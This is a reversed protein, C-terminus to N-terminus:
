ALLERRLAETVQPRVGFWAEFAPAAQHMLMSLGDIVKNGRDRAAALLSTELPAYVIDYVLASKPLSSLDIELAPQNKMGLSTTNVLLGAGALAESRKEWDVVKGQYLSALHQAKEQSRNSIVLEKFGDSQLAWCIARAAGGAGLVVAKKKQATSAGQMFGYADTNMGHLKGNKIVITNAAGIERVVEDMSDLMPLVLEKHPLTLNCGIYNEAILKKLTAELAEPKAEVATYDGAIGHEKLWYRHLKPSLSHSVPYGIICARKM